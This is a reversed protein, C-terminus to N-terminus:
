MAASPLGTRVRHSLSTRGPPNSCDGHTPDCASFLLPESVSLDSPGNFNEPIVTSTAPLANGFSIADLYVTNTILPLAFNNRPDGPSTQFNYALAGSDSYSNIIATGDPQAAITEYGWSDAAAYRPMVALLAACLLGYCGM